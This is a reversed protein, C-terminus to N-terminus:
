EEMYAYHFRTDGLSSVLVNKLKPDALIAIASYHIPIIVADDGTILIEEAKHMAEMRKSVDTTEKAFVIFEDYAMNSYRWYNQPSGSVYNELFTMPDNYDGIWSNRAMQFEGNKRAEQYVAWEVAIVRLDINLHEKWMQQVAEAVQIYPLYTSTTFEIVPTNEGNPYGAEALLKKAEEINKEYNLPDIDLYNGGNERFDGEIDAAGMPVWAAAANQGSMAVKEVIYNRDITLSLAKRVKPNKLFENTGNINFAFTGFYPVTYVLGEEILKLTDQESPNNSFDISGEKVGAIALNQDRSLIFTIQNLKIKEKDWYTDSKVMVMKDDVVRETLIFAGNGIYTDANLSWGTPDAEVIDSRVPFFVPYTILDLFYTTPNVLEIELTLDDIAKVGLSEVSMSGELIENANKIYEIFATYEAASEPNAARKIGYEFDYATVPKGDSWKSNDRLNFTYTLGDPSTNWSEAVGGVLEGIDNKTILGEFVHRAYIFDNGTISPDITKPESSVNVVLQTKDDRVNEGCSILLITMMIFAINKKM